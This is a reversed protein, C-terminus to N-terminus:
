GAGEARWAEPVEVRPADNLAHLRELPMLRYTTCLGLGKTVMPPGGMVRQLLEPELVWYDGMDIIELFKGTWKGGVRKAAIKCAREISIM